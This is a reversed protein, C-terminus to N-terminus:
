RPVSCPTLGQQGCGEIYEEGSLGMGWPQWEWQQKPTPKPVWTWARGHFGGWAAQLYRQSAELWAWRRLRWLGWCTEFGPGLFILIKWVM